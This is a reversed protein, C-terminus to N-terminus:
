DLHCFDAVSQVTDEINVNIIYASQSFLKMLELNNETSRDDFSKRSIMESIGREQMRELRDEAPTDLVVLYITRTTPYLKLLDKAGGADVVYIDSADLQAKTAGYHNEGIYAYAAFEGARLFQEMMEKSTFTHGKEDPWRPPRSTYSQLETLGYRSCLEHVITSKGCGSPGVVLILPTEKKIGTIHQMSIM